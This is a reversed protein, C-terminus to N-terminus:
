KFAKKNTEEEQYKKHNEPSKKDMRAGCHPCYEFSPENMIMSVYCARECASCRYKMHELHLWEGHRVPEAEIPIVKLNNREESTKVGGWFYEGSAVVFAEVFGNTMYETKFGMVGDYMFLGVPADILEKKNM